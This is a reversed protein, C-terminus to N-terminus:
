RGRGGGGGFGGGSFGGGFSGGGSRGGSRSSPRVSSRALGSTLASSYIFARGGCSQLRQDIVEKSLSKTFNKIWKSQIGFAYAYPLYDAFIKLKDEPNSLEARHKEATEMYKKFALLSLYLERGKPSANDMYSIYIPLMIFAALFLAENWGEIAIATVIPIVCQSAFVIKFIIGTIGPMSFFLVSGFSIAFINLFIIDANFVTMMLLMIIIPFIIFRYNKEIYKEGQKLLANEVNDFCKEVRSQYEGKLTLTGGSTLDKILLTEEKAQEPLAEATKTIEVTKGTQTIKIQGKVALSVFATSFFQNEFKRKLIYGALAPSIGQPPVYSVEGTYKPDKGFRFWTIIYYALLLAFLLPVLYKKLMLKIQYGLPPKINPNTFPVSVTFGQGKYLYKTTKFFLYGAQRANSEQSGRYGTYLSIGKDVVESGEPLILRFSANEIPFAWDNGTVNWYVENFDKGFVVANKMTYFLKYSHIGSSIYDDNGFNVNLNGNEYETFFPHPAGDMFLTQVRIERGSEEPLERVLGKRIKRGEVNVTIEETVEAVANENLRLTVDFNIIKEEAFSFVPLLTLLFVAIFKKM